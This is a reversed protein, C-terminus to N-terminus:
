HIHQSSYRQRYSKLYTALSASVTQPVVQAVTVGYSSVYGKFVPCWLMNCKTFKETGPKRAEYIEVLKQKWGDQKTTSLLIKDLSRTRRVASTGAALELFTARESLFALSMKTNKASKQRKERMFILLRAREEEEDLRNHKFIEIQASLYEAYLNELRAQAELEDIKASFVCMSQTRTSPSKANEKEFNATADGSINWASQLDESRKNLATTDVVDRPNKSVRYPIHPQDM